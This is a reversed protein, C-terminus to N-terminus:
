GTEKLDLQELTEPLPYGTKLDWGMGRYYIERMKNWHERIGVGNLPGDVPTSGYRPSPFEDDTRHGHRMNFMRLLNVIRRGIKMADDLTLEWGTVANVCPLVVKPTLAAFRCVVLSDDFQRYGNVRANLAAVEEPSFVDKAVPMEYMEPSAGGFTAELTGTNSLCTDLMEAWRGRHDHGRPTSGDMAHVAIEPAGRGIRAAARMVGDALVDGIGERRAIKEILRAVASANGWSMELGDLDQKTLIGKEYAEMVFGMIWGTENGDLGAGDALTALHVATGADSQGILPGFAAMLEYEPEPATLGSHPGETVTVVKCHNTRCAYCPANKVKFHTRMYEGTLNVFEPFVNTTYNKVPLAANKYVVPMTGASGWKYILGGVDTKSAEVVDENCKHLRETDFVPFRRKGRCVIVAKLKKSGMVAGLGNKSAAHGEDGVVCAFRVQNEGAPGITFISAARGTINLEKRLEKETEFTSKGRLHRADRFEAKGDRILLYVWDAGAGEIVMADFGSFKLFAGFYGQAQSCGASGTMAGLAVLSFGGAGNFGSGTLPGAGFVLRNDPANWLTGAQVEEWLTKAGLGTGGVWKERERATFEVESFRRETLDVRLIKGTYGFAESGM